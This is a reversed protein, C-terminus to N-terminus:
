GDAREEEALAAAARLVGEARIRYWNRVPEILGLWEVEDLEALARAAREVAAEEPAGARARLAALEARAEDRERIAEMYRRHSGGFGKHNFDREGTLARIRDALSTGEPAADGAVSDPLAAWAEALEDLGPAPEPASPPSQCRGHDVEVVRLQQIREVIADDDSEDSIGLLRTLGRDEQVQYALFLREFEPYDPEFRNDEDLPINHLSAYMQEVVGYQSFDVDQPNEAGRGGGPSEPRRSNEIRDVLALLREAYTRVQAPTVSRVSCGSVKERDSMSASIRWGGDPAGDYGHEYGITINCGWAISWGVSEVVARNEEDDWGEPVDDPDAYVPRVSERPQDGPRTESIVGPPPFKAQRRIECGCANDPDDIQECDGDHNRVRNMLRAIGEEGWDRADAPMEAAPAPVAPRPGPRPDPSAASHARDWHEFLKVEAEPGHWSWQACRPCELKRDTECYSIVKEAIREAGEGGLYIGAVEDNITAVLAHYAENSRRGHTAQGTAPVPRLRLRRLDINTRGGPPSWQVAARGDGFLGVIQGPEGTAGVEVDDGIEFARVHQGCMECVKPPEGGAGTASSPSPPTPTM